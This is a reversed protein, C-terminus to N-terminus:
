RNTNYLEVLKNKQVKGSLTKPFEQVLEIAEPLKYAVLNELLWIRLSDTTIKEEGITKSIVYLVYSEGYFDHKIPVAAVDEVEMKSKVLNEIEILSVFLGGKKIIDRNRGALVLQGDENIGGLDKTDFFGEEDLELEMNGDKNLYGEFLFPTKVWLTNIGDMTEYPVLKYEIYPLFPGVSSQERHIIDERKEATLFTTESLAFNEYLNMGFVAEFEEKDKKSIPATGLFSIKIKEYYFNKYSDGVIKSIKLLGQVISPVFWLANVDYRKVTNWYNLITKGSFPETILFSGGCCLPILALNYLGGLYSMPLYNWFRVGSDDISYYKVFTYGSTWLTDRDIVMAKPSGTTGSTLLYINASNTLQVEDLMEPLWSMDGDCKCSIELEPNIAYENKETKRFFIKPDTLSMWNEIERQSAQCPLPAFNFGGVMAAFFCIIAEPSNPLMSLVTDGRKMGRKEFLTIFKKVYIFVDNYTYFLTKNGGDYVIMINEAKEYCLEIFDEDFKKIDINM